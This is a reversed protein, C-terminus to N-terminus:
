GAMIADTEVTISEKMAPETEVVASEAKVSSERKKKSFFGKMFDRQRPLSTDEDELKGFIGIKPVSKIRVQYLLRERILEMANKAEIRSVHIGKNLPAVRTLMSKLGEALEDVEADFNITSSETMEARKSADGLAVNLLMMLAGLEQYDTSQNIQFEDGELRDIIARIHVTDEPKKDARQLDDFFFVSALRRKLDLTRTQLHISSPNFGPIVAPGLPVIARWRMTAKPTSESLSYCVEQCFSIWQEDPVSRAVLDAAERWKQAYGFNEVAISDMSLRLLIQMATSRTSPTFDDSMNGLVELFNEVCTWDRSPYPNSTEERLTVRAMLEDVDKTAGLNKFLQKLLTPTVLRQTQDHCITLLKRYEVQLPRRRESCVEDLVWLFIEDPMNGLKKQISYPFGSAFHRARDQAGGLIAWAGKAQDKPFRRGVVDMDPEKQEFFYYRRSDGGLETRELARVIRMRDAGGGEEDGQDGGAANASELIHEKLAAAASGEDEEDGRQAGARTEEDKRAFELLAKMDYRKKKSQITLPSSLFDPPAAATRKARPTVCPNNYNNRRAPATNRSPPPLAPAATAKRPAGIFGLDPFLDDDSDPDEDSAAIVTDRSLPARPATPEDIPTIYPPSSPVEPLSSTSPSQPVDDDPQSIPELAPAPPTQSTRSQSAPPRSPQSNGFFSRIDGNKKSAM